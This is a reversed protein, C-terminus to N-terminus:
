AASERFGFVASDARLRKKALAGSIAFFNEPPISRRHKWNSIAPRSLGLLNAAAATGGLADIIDEVSKLM